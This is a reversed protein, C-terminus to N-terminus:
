GAMPWDTLCDTLWNTARKVCRHRMEGGITFCKWRKSTEGHLECLFGASCIRFLPSLVRWSSSTPTNVLHKGPTRREIQVQLCNIIMLISNYFTAISIRVWWVDQFTIFNTKWALNCLWMIPILLSSATQSVRPSLPQKGPSLHNIKM